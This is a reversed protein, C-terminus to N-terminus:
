SWIPVQLDDASARIPMILGYAEQGFDILGARQGHQRLKMLSKSPMLNANIKAMKAILSPDYLAPEEPLVAASDPGVQRLTDLTFTAPLADGEVHLQEEPNTLTLRGGQATIVWGDRPKAWKAPIKGTPVFMTTKAVTGHPDYGAFLVNGNTGIILVGPRSPHDLVTVGQLYTRMSKPDALTLANVFLHPKTIYM